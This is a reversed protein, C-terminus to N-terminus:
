RTPQMFNNLQEVSIAISICKGVGGPTIHLEKYHLKLEFEGGLSNELEEPRYRQVPLGSRM